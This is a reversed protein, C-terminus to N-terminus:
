GRCKTREEDDYKVLKIKVETTWDISKQAQM